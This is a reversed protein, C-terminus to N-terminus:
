LRYAAQIEWSLGEQLLLNCIAVETLCCAFVTYAKVLEILLASIGVAIGKLLQLLIIVDGESKYLQQIGIVLLILLMQIIKHLM